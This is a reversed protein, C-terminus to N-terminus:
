RPGGKPKIVPGQGKSPIVGAANLNNLARRLKGLANRIALLWAPITMSIM